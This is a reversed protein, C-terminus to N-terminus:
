PENIADTHLLDTLHPYAIKKFRTRARHLIKNFQLKDVGLEQCLQEKEVEDLLFKKLVIRDREAHLQDLLEITFNYAQARRIHTFPSECPSVSKEIHDTDNTCRTHSANRFYSQAVRRTFTNLYAPLAHCDKLEGQRLKPLALLWVQNVLDDIDSPTNTRARLIRRMYPEYLTVLQSEASKDGTAIREALQAVDEILSPSSARSSHPIAGVKAAEVAPIKEPQNKQM